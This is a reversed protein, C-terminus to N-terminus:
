GCGVQETPCTFTNYCLATNSPPCTDALSYCEKIPLTVCLEEPDSCQRLSEGGVAAGMEVNNLNVVTRKNLNLTKRAIKKTKM